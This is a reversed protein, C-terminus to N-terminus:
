FIVRIRQVHFYWLLVISWPIKFLAMKIIQPTCDQSLSWIHKSRMFSHILPVSYHFKSAANDKFCIFLINVYHTKELPCHKWSHCSNKKLFAMKKKTFVSTSRFQIVPHGFISYIEFQRVMWKRAFSHISM